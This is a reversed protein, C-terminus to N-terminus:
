DESISHYQYPGTGIAQLIKEKEILDGQLYHKSIIPFILQYLIKKDREALRIQIANEDIKEIAIINKINERYVSENKLITQYTFIVDEASFPKGDHWKAKTNLKIIWTLEDKEYWETALKPELKNKENLDFLPEYILKLTDCVQKNKTLIPHFTDLEILPLNLEDIYIEHNGSDIQPTAIKVELSTEKLVVLVGIIIGIAILIALVRKM